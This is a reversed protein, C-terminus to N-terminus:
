LDVVVFILPWVSDYEIGGCWWLKVLGRYCREGVLWARLRGWREGVVVEGM